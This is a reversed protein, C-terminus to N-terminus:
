QAGRIGYRRHDQAERAAKYEAHAEHLKLEVEAIKAQLQQKTLKPQLDIVKGSRVWWDYGKLELRLDDLQSQRWEVRRRAELVRESEM